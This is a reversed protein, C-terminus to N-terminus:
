NEAIMDVIDVIHTAIERRRWSFRYQVTLKLTLIMEDSARKKVLKLNTSSNPTDKEDARNKM